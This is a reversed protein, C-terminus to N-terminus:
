NSRSALVSSVLGFPQRRDRRRIPSDARRANARGLVGQSLRDFAGARSGGDGRRKRTRGVLRDLRRTLSLYSQIIQLSTKVRHHLERILFENEALSTKLSQERIESERMMENFSAALDRLESPMEDNEPALPAGGGAKRARMAAKIGDIWRLLESQIARSYAFYLTALMILPTLVLVLTRLGLWGGRLVTSAASSIFTRDSCRSRQTISRRAQGPPRRPSRMTRASRRSPPPFGAQTPRM